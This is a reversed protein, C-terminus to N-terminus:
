KFYEPTNISMWDLLQRMIYSAGVSNASPGAEMMITFAYQPNEYPFFGIIWSNVKDKNVGLQATGTKSAVEIYPVNLLISTGFTVSQRMGEHAVDFYEKKLDIKSIIKEKEKDELIYHPTILTGYNALASVARTMEMPTVQFGYQGIITHYTDGVRWQEGKFNEIKWLPSPIVGGKEDPLDLGTKEGIGFLKAYKEINYIGIGKQGEFGGGIEYFYVDSSVAIAERMDVWGHAKWDKFVTKENPFYPNPISISGTSLIKKYPDIVQENLAGIAFFPKVISGPTYLGSITRDLFVKRKDKFYDGIIKSDKGLSLIESNYEPFSVSSIIEGNKVNILVGAGGSFSNSKSLNKILTYLETQIRSDITTILDVGRVPTNVINESHIERRADIEVIKSGNQGRLALDYQKELGDKGIFESQWYNGSKDQTPYSVYGLVHSFGPSLYTRIMTPMNIEKKNWAIEKKNRDYIIGRESFIIQKELINSESRSLYVEGKQIQLYALRVTFIILFLLFFISISSITKKSIPKEIRGEFQQRDFNELNKSDLFIEYPEVFFNANKIKQKNFIKRRM